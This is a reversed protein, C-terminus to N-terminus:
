KSFMSKHFCTWIEFILILFNCFLPICNLLILIVKIQLLFYYDKSYKKGDDGGFNLDKKWIDDDNECEM